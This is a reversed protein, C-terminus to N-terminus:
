PTPTAFWDFAQSAFIVVMVVGLTFKFMMSLLYGCLLGGSSRGAARWDGHQRYTEWALMGIVAGILAGPLNAVLLGAVAGIGGFLLGRWSAGGSAGAVAGGRRAGLAALLLDSIESMLMILALVVLTLWGVHVFGDAWAWALVSLWILIAGPLLPAVTGIMGLAMGLFALMQVLDQWNAFM